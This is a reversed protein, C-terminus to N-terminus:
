KVGEFLNQPAIYAKLQLDAPKTTAGGVSTVRMSINDYQNISGLYTGSNPLVSRMVNQTMLDIAPSYFATTERYVNVACAAGTGAAATRVKLDVALLWALYPVDLLWTGQPNNSDAVLEGPISIQHIYDGFKRNPAAKFDKDGSELQSLTVVSVTVTGADGYTSSIYGVRRITGDANTCTFLSGELMKREVTTGSFTFTNGNLYSGNLDVWIRLFLDDVTAKKNVSGSTDYLILEDKGEINTVENTGNIDLRIELTEDVGGGIETKKIGGAVSVKDYLYGANTDDASVKVKNGSAGANVSSITVKKKNGDDASDEILLIDNDAPTTKQQFTGIDGASRKLQADNTVDSLGVQTKTVQHPNNTDDVHSAPAKGDLENQLDAQDAIDGTIDGWKAEGSGPLPFFRIPM